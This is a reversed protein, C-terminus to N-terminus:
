AVISYPIVANVIVLETSNDQKTAINTALSHNNNATNNVSTSPITFPKVLLPALAAGMGYGSHM